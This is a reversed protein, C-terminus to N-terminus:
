EEVQKYVVAENDGDKETDKTKKFTLGERSLEDELKVYSNYTAFTKNGEKSVFCVRQVEDPTNKEEAM